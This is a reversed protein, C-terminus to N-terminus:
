YGGDYHILYSSIESKPTQILTEFPIASGPALGSINLFETERLTGSADYVKLIFKCLQFYRNSMNVILGSLKTAVLKDELVVDRYFLGHGAPYENVTKQHAVDELSSSILQKQIWGTLSIKVWDDKVELVEVATTAMGKATVAGAPSLRIIANDRTIYYGDVATCLVPFLIVTLFSFSQILRRVM